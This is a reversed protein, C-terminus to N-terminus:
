ELPKDVTNFAPRMIYIMLAAAIGFLCIIAEIIWLSSILHAQYLAPFFDFVAHLGIAALVYKFAHRRVGLLVLLSLFLQLIFAMLREISGLIYPGLGQNVFGEKLSQVDEASFQSGLSSALTGTNILHSIILANVGAFTGILLSEIGGHGIGYSLGDTLHSKGKLLWKFGIYRGIEEFVGAALGGYIAFAIGSDTWKLTNGNLFLHHAATELIRSFVIFVLIGIGVAKWSLAKKIQLYILLAIPVGASIIIQIIMGVYASKAIM